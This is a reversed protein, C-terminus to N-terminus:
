LDSKHQVELYLELVLAECSGAMGPVQVKDYGCGYYKAFKQVVIKYM